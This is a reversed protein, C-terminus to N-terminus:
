GISGLYLCDQQGTQGVELYWFPASGDKPTIFALEWHSQPQRLRYCEGTFAESSYKADDDPWRVLTGNFPDEDFYFFTAMTGSVVLRVSDAGVQTLDYLGGNADTAMVLHWAGDKAEASGARTLYLCDQDGNPGVEVYWFPESGDKPTAFVLEWFSGEQRLRYVEGTWAEATYKGDDEPWRQFTGTFPAEGMYTFTGASGDVALTVQALEAATLSYAYGSADTAYALQWTGDKPDSVSPTPTDPADSTGPKQPGAPMPSSSPASPSNGAGGGSGSGGEGGGCGVAFLVACCALMGALVLVPLKAFRRM